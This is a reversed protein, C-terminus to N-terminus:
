NPMYYDFSKEVDFALQLVFFLCRDCFSEHKKTVPLYFSPIGAPIHTNLSRNMEEDVESEQMCAPLQNM